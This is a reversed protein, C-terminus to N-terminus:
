KPKCINCRGHLGGTKMTYCAGIAIVACFLFQNIEMSWMTPKEFFYRSIIEYTMLIMLVVVLVGPILAVKESITDIKLSIKKLREM